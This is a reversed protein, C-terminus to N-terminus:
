DKWPILAVLALLVGLGLMFAEPGAGQAIPNLKFSPTLRLSLCMAAIVACFIRADNSM